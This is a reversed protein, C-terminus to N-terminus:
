EELNLCIAFFLVTTLARKNRSRAKEIRRKGLSDSDLFFCCCVIGKKERFISKTTANANNHRNVISGHRTRECCCCLSRTFMVSTGFARALPARLNLKM